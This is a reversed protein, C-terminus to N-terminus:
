ESKGSASDRLCQGVPDLKAKIADGQKVTGHHIRYAERNTVGIFQLARM